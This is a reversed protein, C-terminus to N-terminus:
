NNTIQYTISSNRTAITTNVVSLTFALAGLYICLLAANAKPKLLSLLM